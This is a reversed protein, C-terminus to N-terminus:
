RGSAGRRSATPCRIRRQRDQVGCDRTVHARARRRTARGRFRLIGPHRHGPRHPHAPEGALLLNVVENAGLAAFESTPAEFAVGMIIAGPVPGFAGRDEPEAGAFTIRKVMDQIVDESPTDPEDDFMGVRDALELLNVRTMVRRQIIQIQEYPDIPVTSQALEDSIQPPEVLIVAQSVFVPPLIFAMTLGTASLFALVVAFYPLRRLFVAWYYKLDLNGM